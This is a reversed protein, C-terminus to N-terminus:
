FKITKVDGWVSTSYQVSHPTISTVYGRITKTMKKVNKGDVTARKIVFTNDGANMNKNSYFSAYYVYKGSVCHQFSYKEIRKKKGTTLNMTYMPQPSKYYFDDLVIGTGKYAGDLVLKNKYIRHAKTNLSCTYVAGGHKGATETLYLKNKYCYITRIYKGSLTKVKQSKGGKVSISYIKSSGEGSSYTYNSKVYYVTSGNTTFCNVGSALKKWKGNKGKRAYLSSNSYAVLKVQYGGTSAIKVPSGKVSIEGMVYGTSSAAQVAGASLMMIAALLVVLLKKMNKRM